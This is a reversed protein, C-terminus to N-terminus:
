WRLAETPIYAVEKVIDDEDYDIQISVPIHFDETSFLDVWGFPVNMVIQPPTSRIPNGFVEHVWKRTMKNQKLLPAPLENPFVWGRVSQNQIMLTIEKLCKGNRDFALFVGEKPMDLSLIPSGSAGKPTKKYPILDANAIDSYTGGLYRILANVNVTM